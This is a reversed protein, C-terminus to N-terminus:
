DLFSRTGAWGAQSTTACTMLREPPRAKEQDSQQVTTVAVAEQAGNVLAVLSSNQLRRRSRWSAEEHHLLQAPSATRTHNTRLVGDCAGTYPVLKV